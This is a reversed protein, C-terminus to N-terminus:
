VVKQHSCKFFYKNFKNCHQKQKKTEKKPGLPMHPIRTQNMHISGTSGANVVPGGSFGVLVM